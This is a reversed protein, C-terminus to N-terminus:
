NHARALDREHCWEWFEQKEQGWLEVKGEVELAATVLPNLKAIPMDKAEQESLHLASMALSLLALQGNSEIPRSHDRQITPQRDCSEKLWAIFRDAETIVNMKQWKIVWEWVMFAAGCFRSRKTHEYDDATRHACIFVGTVFDEAKMEDGEIVTPCDRLMALIHGLTLPEMRLGLVTARPPNLASTAWRSAM